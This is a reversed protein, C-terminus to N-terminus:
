KSLQLVCDAFKETGAELGLQDCEEKALTISNKEVVKSKLINSEKTKYEKDFKISAIKQDIEKEATSWKEMFQSYMKGDYDFSLYIKDKFNGDGDLFGKMEVNRVLNNNVTQLYGKQYRHQVGPSGVWMNKSKIYSFPGIQKWGTDYTLTCTLCNYPSSFNGSLTGNSLEVTKTVPYTSKNYYETNYESSGCGILFLFPLYIGLKLFQM